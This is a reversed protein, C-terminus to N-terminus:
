CGDVRRDWYWFEVVAVVDIPTYNKSVYIRGVCLKKPRRVAM